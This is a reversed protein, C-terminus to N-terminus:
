AVKPSRSKLWDIVSPFEELGYGLIKKQRDTFDPPEWLVSPVHFQQRLTPITFVHNIARRNEDTRNTSGAHYVMCNLVIVTGRKVTVRTEFRRVVEDLPFAERHHTRRIM